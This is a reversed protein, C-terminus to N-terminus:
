RTVSASRTVVWNTAMFGYRPFSYKTTRALASTCMRAEATTSFSTTLTNSAYGLKSTMLLVRTLCLVVTLVETPSGFCVRLFSNRFPMARLAAEAAVVANTLAANPAQLTIHHTALLKTKSTKSSSFSLRNFSCSHSDSSLKVFMDTSIMDMARGISKIRGPGGLRRGRQRGCSVM